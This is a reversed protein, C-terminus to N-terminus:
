RLVHPHKIKASLKAEQLFRARFNGYESSGLNPADRHLTKIAVLTDLATHRALYVVGFAGRGLEREIRYKDLILQNPTFM